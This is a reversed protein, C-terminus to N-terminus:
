FKRAKAFFGALARLTRKPRYGEKSSKVKATSAMGLRRRCLHLALLAADGLDPSANARLKMKQKPEVQVKGRAKTQYTRATLERALAPSIGRLQNSRLYEHGVFWIESVLNLYVEKSPRPDTSSAA